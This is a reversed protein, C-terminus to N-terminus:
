NTSRDDIGLEKLVENLSVSILMDPIAIGFTIKEGDNTIFCLTKYVNCTNGKDTFVGVTHKFEYNKLKKFKNKMQVELGAM